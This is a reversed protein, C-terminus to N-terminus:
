VITPVGDFHFSISQKAFVDVHVIIITQNEEGFLFLLLFLIYMLYVSKYMLYLHKASTTVCELRM